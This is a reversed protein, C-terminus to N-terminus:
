LPIEEVSARPIKAFSQRFYNCHRRLDFFLLPRLLAQRLGLGIFTWRLYFQTLSM